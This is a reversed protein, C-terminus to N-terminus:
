RRGKSHIVTCVRSSEEVPALAAVFDGVNLTEANEKMRRCMRARLIRAPFDDWAGDRRSARQPEVRVTAVIDEGAGEIATVRGEVRYDGDRRADIENM